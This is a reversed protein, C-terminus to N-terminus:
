LIQRLVLSVTRTTTGRRVTLHLVTGVPRTFATQMSDDTPPQGDIETIVDEQKLGARAGPSGPIVTKVTLHEPFDDLLLGARNFVDPKGYNANKELYMKGHPGDFVITFQRLIHLGINGAVTTSTEAGQTDTSLVTIPRIVEANGLLLTDARTYFGHDPGGFGSGAYGQIKAHYHQVLKHQKVFPAYLSLSYFDGTDIGFLGDMGDVTAEALLAGDKSHIPVPAGTGTYAFREKSYFTIEEKEFDVRIPLNQLLLDGVFIGDQGQTLPTDIVAFLQDSMTLGGINISAVKAVKGDVTGGGAEMTASGELRLGLRKALSATMLNGSGTDFVADFPGQGNITAKLQVGSKAPVTVARAAAASTTPSASNPAPATQAMVSLPLLPM